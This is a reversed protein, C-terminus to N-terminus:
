FDRSEWVKLVKGLVHFDMDPTITWTEYDKNQPIARIGVGPVRQLRKIFGENAVRFFYVGDHQCSKVGTDVLIPDGRNFMGKMSDGFGTIVCLNAPGTNSPVNKLMWEETAILSVIQGPQDQLIIDRGMSGVVERYHPIEVAFYEARNSAIKYRLKPSPERDSTIPHKEEELGSEAWGNFLWNMNIKLYACTKIANEAGMMKTKGTLWDGISPQKNGTARALEAQSIGRIELAKALRIHWNKM